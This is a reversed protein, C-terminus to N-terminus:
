AKQSSSKPQEELALLSLPPAHMVLFQILRNPRSRYAVLACLSRPLSTSSPTHLNTSAATSRLSCACSEANSTRRHVDFDADISSSSCITMRWAASRSRESRSARWARVRSEAGVSAVVWGSRRWVASWEESEMASTGPRAFMGSGFVAEKAQGMSVMVGMGCMTAKPRVAMASCAALDRIVKVRMRTRDWYGRGNVTDTEGRVHM